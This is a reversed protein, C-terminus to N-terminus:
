LRVNRPLPGGEGEFSVMREAFDRFVAWYKDNRDIDSWFSNCRWCSIAFYGFMYYAINKKIIGSNELIAIEELFGLYTEKQSLSLQKIETEDGQNLAKYVANFDDDEFMRDRMQLFYEASKQKGQRAYEFVGKLLAFLSIAAGIIAVIDKIEM